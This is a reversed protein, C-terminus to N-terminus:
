ASPSTATHREDPEPSYVWAIRFQAEIQDKPIVVPEYKPNPHISELFVLDGAFRIRKVLLRGDKLRAVVPMGPNNCRYPDAIVVDGHEYKPSMSDGSIRVAFSGEPDIGCPCSIKEVGDWSATENNEDTHHLVPLTRISGKTVAVPCDIIMELDLEQHIEEMEADSTLLEVPYDDSEFEEIMADLEDRFKKARLLVDLAKKNAIQNNAANINLNSLM